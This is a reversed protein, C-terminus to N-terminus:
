EAVLVLILLGPILIGKCILYADVLVIYFLKKM